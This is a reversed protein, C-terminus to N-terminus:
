LTTSLRAVVSGSYVSLGRGSGGGAARGAEGRRLRALLRPLDVPLLELGRSRDYSAALASVYPGVATVIEVHHQRHVLAADLAGHWQAYDRYQPNGLILVRFATHDAHGHAQASPSRLGEQAQPTRQDRDGELGRALARNVVALAHEIVRLKGVLTIRHGVDIDLAQGHPESVNSRTPLTTTGVITDGISRVDNRRLATGESHTPHDNDPPERVARPRRPRLAFQGRRVRGGAPGLRGAPRTEGPDVVWWRTGVRRGSEGSAAPETVTFRELLHWRNEVPLIVRVGKPVQQVIREVTPGPLKVQGLRTTPNLSFEPLYVSGNTGVCLGPGSRQSFSGVPRDRLM